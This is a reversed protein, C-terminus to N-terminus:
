VRFHSLKGHESIESMPGLNPQLSVSKMKLPINLVLRSPNCYEPSPILRCVRFGPGKLGNTGNRWGLSDM